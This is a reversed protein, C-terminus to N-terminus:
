RTARQVRIDGNVSELTIQPGGQGVRVNATNDARYVFRRGNRRTTVVQSPQSQVDFDTFLGGNLTKLRLDASLGALWTVAVSGNVTKFVADRGPPDVFSAEVGGNVTTASGSGRVDTMRIRGTVNEVEFDGSTRTVEILSGNVTCLVLRTNDPVTATFDYSVSYPLDRRWDDRRNNREGCVAMNADRAIVEVDPRMDATTLMSEEEGRRIDARTDARIIRKVDLQVSSDSSGSVRIPGNINRVTLSREGSGSFRLTYHTNTEDRLRFDDARVFADAAVLTLALVLWPRMM